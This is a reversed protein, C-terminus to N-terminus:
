TGARRSPGAYWCGCRRRSGVRTNLGTLEAVGYEGQVTGDQHLSTQWQTEPLAAIATEDAGTMMWGVTYRVTRRATNLAQLHELLDHTAGAGDIRVLFKARSSGPVQALAAVLVEITVGRFGPYM